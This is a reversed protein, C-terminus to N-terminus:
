RQWSCIWGLGGPLVPTHKPRAFSDTHPALNLMFFREAERKEM